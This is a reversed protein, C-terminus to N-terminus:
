RFGIRVDAIVKRADIAALHPGPPVHLIGRGVDEDGVVRHQVDHEHAVDFVHNEALRAVPQALIGAVDEKKDHVLQVGVPSRRPGFHGVNQAEAEVTEAERRRGLLESDQRGGRAHVLSVPRLLEQLLEKPAAIAEFDHGAGLDRRLRTRM